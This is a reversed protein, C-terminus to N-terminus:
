AGSFPKFGHYICHGPNYFFVGLGNINNEALGVGMNFIFESIRVPLAKNLLDGPEPNVFVNVKFVM